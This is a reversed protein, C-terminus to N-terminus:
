SRHKAPKPKPSKLKVVPNSKALYSAPAIGGHYNAALPNGANDLIGAATIRLTKPASKSKGGETLEVTEVDTPLGANPLVTASVPHLTSGNSNAFTYNATQELSPVSMGSLGDQFEVFVHGHGDSSVGVVAPPTTDIVYLGTTGVLQPGTPSGGPATVIATITFIGQSLPGVGLSWAGNAGAVTQGLSLTADVDTRKAYLQVLAYPTTMGSFTPRNTDSYGLAAFPGNEGGPDLGGTLTPALPAVNMLATSVASGMQGSPDTVTVTVM